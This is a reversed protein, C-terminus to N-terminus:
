RENREEQDQCGRQQIIGDGGPKKQPLRNFKHNTGISIEKDLLTEAVGKANEGFCTRM